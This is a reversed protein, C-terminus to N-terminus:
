LFDLMRRLHGVSVTFSPTGSVHEGLGESVLAHWAEGGVHVDVFSAVDDVDFAVTGDLLTHWVFDVVTLGTSNVVDGLVGDTDDDVFSDSSVDNGLSDVESNLVDLVGLRSQAEEVSDVLVFGGSLSVKVVFVLWDQLPDWDLWSFSMNDLSLLGAFLKDSWDWVFKDNLNLIQETKNMKPFYFISKSFNKILFYNLIPFIPFFGFFRFFVRFISFFGSFDNLIKFFGRFYM